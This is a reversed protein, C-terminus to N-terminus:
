KKKLFLFYAVLGAVAIVALPTLIKSTANIASGAAAGITNPLNSAASGISGAIMSGTSELPPPSFAATIDQGAGNTIIMTGDAYRTTTGGQLNATQSVVQSPQGFDIGSGLVSGFDIPETISADGLGGRNRARLKPQAFAVAKGTLSDWHALAQRAEFAAGRLDSLSGLYKGM